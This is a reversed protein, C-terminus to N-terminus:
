LVGGWRCMGTHAWSLLPNGLYTCASLCPSTSLRYCSLLEVHMYQSTGGGVVWGCTLMAAGVTVHTQRCLLCTTLVLHRVQTEKQHM